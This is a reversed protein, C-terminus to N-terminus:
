PLNRLAQDTYAESYKSMVENTMFYKRLDDASDFDPEFRLKRYKSKLTEMTEFIKKFDFVNEFDTAGTENGHIM